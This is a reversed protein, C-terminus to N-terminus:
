QAPNTFVTNGSMRGAFTDANMFFQRGEWPDRVAVVRQGQRTTVGDVVVFHGTQSPNAPNQVHVIASNGGRTANAVDDLSSNLNHRAGSVGDERLALTPHTSARM